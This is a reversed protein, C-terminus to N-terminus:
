ITLDYPHDQSGDNGNNVISVNSKLYLAPRVAESSNANSEVVSGSGVLFMGSRYNNKPTIAWNHTKSYLWNNEYCNVSYYDFLTTTRSCSTSDVAYGYDSPYMLGIYGNWTTPNSGYVAIGREEIYFSSATLSATSAGGINWKVSEIMGRATDKISVGAITVKGNGSHRYTYNINEGNYYQGNLISKIDSQTWDNSGSTSLTDWKINGISENRILKILSEIEGSSTEVEFIGIIRWLENNFTVYNKPNAGEYRYGTNITEGNDNTFTEHVMENKAILNRCLDNTCFEKEFFLYCKTGKKSVGITVKGDKYEMQVSTDKTGNVECYSESSLTYGSTPVTNTTEYEGSSNQVKIAMVDLDSISYNVTTNILNLRQEAKYNARTSVFFVVSSVALIAVIGIIWKKRSDKKLTEFEM